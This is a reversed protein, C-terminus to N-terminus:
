FQSKQEIREKRILFLSMLQLTIGSGIIFGKYINPIHFTSLGEVFHPSVVLLLGISIFPFWKSKRTRCM